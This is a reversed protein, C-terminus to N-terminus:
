DYVLKRLREKAYLVDLAKCLLGTKGRLASSHYLLKNPHYPGTRLLNEVATLIRCSRISPGQIWHTVM